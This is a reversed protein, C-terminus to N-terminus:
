ETLASIRARLENAVPRDQGSWYWLYNKLFREQSEPEAHVAKITSKMMRLGLTVWDPQPMSVARLALESSVEFLKEAISVGVPGGYKEYEPEYTAKMFFPKREPETLAEGDFPILPARRSSGIHPLTCAILGDLQERMVDCFEASGHMRLRIHPGYQDIFRLFFWRKLRGDLRALGHALGVIRRVVEDIQNFKAPYIKYYLWEERRHYTNFATRTFAQAASRDAKQTAPMPWGVLSIFESVRSENNDNDTRASVWYQNRAPLAETLTLAIAEDSIIQKLLELAHPSSLHVWIPKRYRPDYSAAKQESVAFVEEPLDHENRWQQVRVFFDFDTEGKSRVPIQAVPFRWSARQLVIRGIERRPTFEVSEPTTPAKNMGLKDRGISHESYWPEIMLLLLGLAGRFRIGPVLGLYSLSVPQDNQDVFYLTQNEADARLKLDRLSYNISNQDATAPAEGPWQLSNGTVGLRSHLNNWESIVPMELVPVDTHTTKVWEALHGALDGHEKDLLDIFRGVLGGQGGSLENVVLKYDGRQVAEESDAAIQFFVSLNPTVASEGAAMQARPSNKGEQLALRDEAIARSTIEIFDEREIFDQLFGLIDGTEGDIGFRRVFHGYLYDILHSRIIGSRLEDALGELDQKINDDLTLQDGDFRVDEYVLGVRSLWAPASSGLAEFIQATKHRLTDFLQLRAEGDMARCSEILQQVDGLLSALHAGRESNTQSAILALRTLVQDDRDSQSYPAVVRVFQLDVLQVLIQHPDAFRGNANLLGILETYSTRRNAELFAALEPMQRPNFNRTAIRENRLAFAEQFTHEVSLVRIKGEERQYLGANPEFSFAQAFERDRAMLQMWSFPLARLLRVINRNGLRSDNTRNEIKAIRTQEQDGEFEAVALQTFTSLPSPKLAARTFYALSSRALKSTPKWDEARYNKMSRLLDALTSQSAVAIGAQLDADNMSQALSSGANVIEQPYTEAAQTLAEERKLALQYWEFLQTRTSDNNIAGIVTKIDEDAEPWSRLNHINRKVRLVCRRLEKQGETQPVLKYLADEIDPALSQMAKEADFATHLHQVTQNLSLGDLRKASIGGVRALCFPAIMPKDNKADQEFNSTNM